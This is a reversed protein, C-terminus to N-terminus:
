QSEVTVDHSIGDRVLQYDMRYIVESSYDSGRVSVARMILFPQIDAREADAM